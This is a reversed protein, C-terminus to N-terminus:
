QCGRPCRGLTLTRGCRGCYAEWGPARYMHVPPVVQTGERAEFQPCTDDYATRHNHVACDAMYATPSGAWHKCNSCTM